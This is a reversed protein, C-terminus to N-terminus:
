LNGNEPLKINSKSFPVRNNLAQTWGKYIEQCNFCKIIYVVNKSNCSLKFFFFYMSKYIGFSFMQLSWLEQCIILEM